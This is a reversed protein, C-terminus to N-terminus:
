LSKIQFMHSFKINVYCSIYKVSIKETPKQEPVSYNLEFLFIGNFGFIFLHITDKFIVHKFM